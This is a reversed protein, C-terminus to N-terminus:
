QAIREQRITRRNIDRMCEYYCLCVWTGRSTCTWRIEHERWCRGHIDPATTLYSYIYERWRRFLFLQEDTPGGPVLLDVTGNSRVFQTSADYAVIEAIITHIQERDM